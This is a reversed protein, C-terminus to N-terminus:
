GGPRAAEVVDLAFDDVWVSGPGFLVVGAELQEAEPPVKLSIEYRTWGTTGHVADRRMEAVDLPYGGRASHLKLGAGSGFRNGTTGETRMWASLRLTKGHYGAAPLTQYIAGFPEPGVNTVRLSREGGRRASPDVTFTYSEPGAHQVAWWGDPMGLKGTATSEFGANTMPVSDLAKAARDPPVAPPPRPTRPARAAPTGADATAALAAHPAFLAFALAVLAANTM